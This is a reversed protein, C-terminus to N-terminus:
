GAIGAVLKERYLVAGKPLPKGAKWDRTVVKRLAEIVEPDYLYDPPLFFPDVIRVKEPGEKIQAGGLDAKPADINALKNMATDMRMLGADTKKEITAIKRATVAEQREYYQLIAAKLGAELDALKVEAPKFQKRVEKLAANLPGTIAEKKETLDKANAKVSALLDAAAQQQEDNKIKGSWELAKVGEIMTKASDDIYEPTTM